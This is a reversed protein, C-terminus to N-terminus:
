MQTISFYNEYCIHRNKKGGVCAHRTMSV